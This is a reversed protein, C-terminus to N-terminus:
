QNIKKLKLNLRIKVIYFTKLGIEPKQISHGM